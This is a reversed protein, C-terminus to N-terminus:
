VASMKELLLCIKGVNEEWTLKVCGVSMAQSDETVVDSREEIDVTIFGVVEGFGFSCNALCSKKM